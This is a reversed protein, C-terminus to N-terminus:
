VPFSRYKLKFRSFSYFYILFPFIPVMQWGCNQHVYPCYSLIIPFHHISVSGGGVGLRMSLPYLHGRRPAFVGPLLTTWRSRCRSELNLLTPFVSRGKGHATMSHIFSLDVQKSSFCFDNCKFRNMVNYCFYTIAVFYCSLCYFKVAKPTAQQVYASSLTWYMHPVGQRLNVVFLIVSLICLM